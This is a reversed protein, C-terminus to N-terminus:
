PCFLFCIVTVERRSAQIKLMAKEKKLQEQFHIDKMTKETELDLRLCKCKLRALFGRALAQLVTVRKEHLEVEMQYDNNRLYVDKYKCEQYQLHDLIGWDMNGSGGRDKKLHDPERVIQHNIVPGTVVQQLTPAVTTFKRSNKDRISLLLKKRHGECMEQFALFSWHQEVQAGWDPCSFFNKQEEESLLQARLTTPSTLAMRTAEMIQACLVSTEEKISRDNWCHGDVIDNRSECSAHHKTTARPNLDNTESCDPFWQRRVEQPNALNRFPNEGRAAKEQLFQVGVVGMVKALVSKFAKNRCTEKVPENDFEILWPVAELVKDFHGEQASIPNDNIQLSRLRHLCALHSLQSQDSINNFSLDLM